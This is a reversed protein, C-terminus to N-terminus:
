ALKRSRLDGRKHCDLEDVLDEPACDVELEDLQLPESDEVWTTAFAHPGPHLQAVPVYLLRHVVLASQASCTPQAVKVQHWIGPALDQTLKIRRTSM